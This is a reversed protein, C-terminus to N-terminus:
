DIKWILQGWTDVVVSEGLLGISDYNVHQPAIARTPTLRTAREQKSDQQPGFRQCSNKQVPPITTTPQLLYTFVIHQHLDTHSKSNKHYNIAPIDLICPQDAQDPNRTPVWIEFMLLYPSCELKLVLSVQWPHCWFCHLQVNKCPTCLKLIHSPHAVQSPLASKGFFAMLPSLDQHVWKEQPSWHMHQVNLLVRLSCALEHVAWEFQNCNQDRQSSYRPQCTHLIRSGQPHKSLTWCSAM